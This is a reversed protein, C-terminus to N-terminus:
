FGVITWFFLKGAEGKLRKLLFEPLKCGIYITVIESVELAGMVECFFPTGMNISLNKGRFGYM